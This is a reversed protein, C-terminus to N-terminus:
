NIEPSFIPMYHTFLTNNSFLGSSQSNLYEIGVSEDRTIPQKTLKKISKKQLFITQPFSVDLVSCGFAKKKPEPAFVEIPNIMVSRVRYNRPLSKELQIVPICIQKRQRSQVRKETPNKNSLTNDETKSYFDLNTHLSATRNNRKNKSSFPFANSINKPKSKEKLSKAPSHALCLTQSSSRYWSNNVTSVQLIQKLRPIAMLVDQTKWPAEVPKKESKDM